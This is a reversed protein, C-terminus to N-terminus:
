LPTKNWSCLLGGSQGLSKKQIWDFDPGSEISNLSKDNWSACKTEQLCIFNPKEAVVLNKIISIAIVSCLRRVNWSLLKMYKM